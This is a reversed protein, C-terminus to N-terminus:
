FYFYLQTRFFQQKEGTTQSLDNDALAKGYVFVNTWKINKAPIYNFGAAFGKQGPSMWNTTDIATNKEFYEYDLWAGYSGAKNKDANKYSIGLVYAKNGTDASTKDYTAYVSYDQNLASTINLDYVRMDDIGATKSQWNQFSATLSTAENLAYNFEASTVKNLKYLYSTSSPTNGEINSDAEAYLLKTKLKKGFEFKVGSVYDDFILGSGFTNNFKGVTMITGAVPGTVSALTVDNAGNYTTGWASSFTGNTKGADNYFNKYAEWAFNGTWGDTINVNADLEIRSYFQHLISTNTTQDKLSQYRLRYLGSFKVNEAAVSNAHVGISELEPKFEAALKDIIAKQEATAKKENAMAKAVLTALENRTLTRDKQFNIDQYDKYIGDQVLSNISAYAWHNIPVLEFPNAAAFVTGGLGLMFVLIFVLVFSKKM